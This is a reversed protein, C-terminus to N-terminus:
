VWSGAMHPLMANSADRLRTAMVQLLLLLFKNGLRPMSAVVQSLDHRSLVAFDTPEVTV